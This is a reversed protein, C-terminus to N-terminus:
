GEGRGRHAYASRAPFMWRDHKKSSFPDLIFFWIKQVWAYLRIKNPLDYFYKQTHNTKQDKRITLHPDYCESPADEHRIKHM